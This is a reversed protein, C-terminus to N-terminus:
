HFDIKETWLCCLKIFANFRSQKTKKVSPNENTSNKKNCSICYTEM